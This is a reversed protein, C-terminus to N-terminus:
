GLYHAVRNVGINGFGRGFLCLRAFIGAYFVHALVAIGIHKWKYDIAIRLLHSAHEGLWSLLNNNRIEALHM